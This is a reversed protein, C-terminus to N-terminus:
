LYKEEDLLTKNALPDFQLTKESVSYMGEQVLSDQEDKRLKSFTIYVRENNVRMPNRKAASIVKEADDITYFEVFVFNRMKDPQFKDRILRIDKVQAFESFKDFIMTENVEPSLYENHIFKVM